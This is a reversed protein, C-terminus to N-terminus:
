RFLRPTTEPTNTVTLVLQVSDIVAGTPISSVDFALLARRLSGNNIEGSYLANGVGSSLSGSESFITNDKSPTLTVTEAWAPTSLLLALLLFGLFRGYM